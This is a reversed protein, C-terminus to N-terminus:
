AEALRIADLVDNINIGKALIQEKFGTLIKKIRRDVAAREKGLGRAIESLALDDEFAMKLMLRDEPSLSGRMEGVILDLKDQVSHLRHQELSESAQASPAAVTRLAEEPDDVPRISAEKQPLQAYLDYLQNRSLRNQPNSAIIHCAEDFTHHSRSTLKELEIATDGLRRATESPRWRGAQQRVM